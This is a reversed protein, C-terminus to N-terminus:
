AVTLAVSETHEFGEDGTWRLTLTTSASPALVHFAVYPNASIAPHLDAAFIQVGAEHCTFRRVIRRPVVKGDSGVRFGSEMPHGIMARIQVLEGAKATEPKKQILTRAM